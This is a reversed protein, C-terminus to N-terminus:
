SWRARVLSAGWAEESGLNGNLEVAGGDVSQMLKAFNRPSTERFRRANKGIPHLESGPCETKPSRGEGFWAFNLATKRSSRRNAFYKHIM